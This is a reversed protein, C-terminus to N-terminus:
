ACIDPNYSRHEEDISKLEQRNSSQGHRAVYSYRLLAYNTLAPLFALWRPSAM